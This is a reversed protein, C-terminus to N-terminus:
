SDEFIFAKCKMYFFVYFLGTYGYTFGTECCVFFGSTIKAKILPVLKFLVLIFLCFFADMVKLFACMVPWGYQSEWFLPFLVDRQPNLCDGNFMLVELM